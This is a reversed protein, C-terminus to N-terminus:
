RSSSWDNTVWFHFIYAYLAHAAPQAAVIEGGGSFLQFFLIHQYVATPYSM